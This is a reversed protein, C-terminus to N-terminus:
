TLQEPLLNEEGYQYGVRQSIFIQVLDPDLHGEDAMQKMIEEAHAVTAPKRYPRDPATLAEFVDALPVIRSLIDLDERRLRLPYGKGNCWEHHNRAITPVRALTGPFPIQQLLDYTHLPHQSLEEREKATLTGRPISLEEVENETLAHVREGKWRYFRTSAIQQIREVDAPSVVTSQEDCHRLFAVEDALVDASPQTDGSPAEGELAVCRMRAEILDIRDGTTWLRTKKDLLRDPIAIKGVDHLLSAMRLAEIEEDSIHVHALAGTDTANVAKAILVALIPVRRSHRGTHPSRQDCADAVVRITAEFMAQYDSLLQKNELAIAAQAALAEALHVDDQSFSTCEGSDNLRNILQLVALCERRHNLLPVTLMSKSRYGLTQDAAETGTFDFGESDYVDKLNVTQRRFVAYASVNALNPNGDASFLPVDPLHCPPSEGGCRLQLRDNILISFVLGRKPEVLYLTGGEAQTLEKAGLLIQELLRPAQQIASLGRSIEILRDLRRVLKPSDM